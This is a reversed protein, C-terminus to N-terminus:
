WALRDKPFLITYRIGERPSAMAPEVATRWANYHPTEKHAAAAEESEYAEYFTFRTPDSVDQLIDFRLNGPEKVSEKQNMETAAIFDDLLDAKVQVHVLTAIM